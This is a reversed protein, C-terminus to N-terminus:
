CWMICTPDARVRVRVKDVRSYEPLAPREGHSVPRSCIFGTFYFAYFLLHYLDTLFRLIIRSLTFSMYTCARVDHTRVNSTPEYAIRLAVGSVGLADRFLGGGPFPQLGSHTHTHTLTHSLSPAYTQTYTQTRTHTPHPSLPL